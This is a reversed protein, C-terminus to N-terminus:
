LGLVGLFSTDTFLLFPDPVSSWPVRVQLVDASCFSSSPISPLLPWHSLLFILFNLTELTLFVSHRFSSPTTPEAAHQQSNPSSVFMIKLLSSNMASRSLHLRQPITLVSAECSLKPFNLLNTFTLSSLLWLCILTAKSHVSVSVHTLPYSPIQSGVFIKLAFLGEEWEIVQSTWLGSGSRQRQPWCGRTVMSSSYWTLECEPHSSTASPQLTMLSVTNCLTCCFLLLLLLLGTM